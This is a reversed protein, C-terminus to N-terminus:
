TIEGFFRNPLLLIIKLAILLVGKGRESKIARIKKYTNYAM